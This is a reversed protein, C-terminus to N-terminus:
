YIKNSRILKSSNKSWCIVRYPFSRGRKCCVDEKVLFFVEWDNHLTYSHEYGVSGGGVFKETDSGAMGSIRINGHHNRGRIVCPKYAVGFM